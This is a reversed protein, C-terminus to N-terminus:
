LPQKQYPKQKEPELKANKIFSYKQTNVGLNSSISGAASLLAGAWWSCRVLRVGVGAAIVLVCLVCASACVFLSHSLALASALALAIRKAQLASRQASSRLRWRM